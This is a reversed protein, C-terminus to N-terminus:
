TYGCSISYDNIFKSYILQCVSFSSSEKCKFTIWCQTFFGTLDETMTPVAVDIKLPKKTVWPSALLVCKILAAFLDM